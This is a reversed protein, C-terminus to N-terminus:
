KKHYYVTGQATKKEFLDAPPHPETAGIILIGEKTLHTHIIEFLAQRDKDNFYIAANRCLISDFTQQHFSPTLINMTEFRTIEQLKPIIRYSNKGSQTFFRAHEEDMLGRRLEFATYEGRGATAIAQASIDTGLIFFDHIRLPYRTSIGMALSYAEQGTSSAASWIRVTGKETIIRPLLIDLLCDFVARDRFFYTENTTLADIFSTLLSTDKRLQQIFEPIGTIGLRSFLPQLRSQMLYTKESTLYIGSEKHLIDRLITFETATIM